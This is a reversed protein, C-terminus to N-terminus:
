SQLEYNSIEISRICKKGGGRELEDTFEDDVQRIIIDVAGNGGSPGWYPNYIDGGTEGNPMPRWFDWSTPEPDRSEIPVHGHREYGRAALQSSFAEFELCVDTMAPRSDLDHWHISLNFWPNDNRGPEHRLFFRWHETLDGEFEYWDKIDPLEVLTM